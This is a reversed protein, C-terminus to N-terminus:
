YRVAQNGAMGLYGGLVAAGLALVTWLIFWGVGSATRSATTALDLAAIGTVVATTSVMVAVASTILALLVAAITMTLAWVMVGHMMGIGRTDIPMLRSAAYSGIFLSAIFSIAVWIGVATSIGRLVALSTIGTITLGVAVGVASLVLQIALALIIGAWIPGWRVRDRLVVTEPVPARIGAKEELRRARAEAM